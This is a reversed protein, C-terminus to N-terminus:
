DPVYKAASYIEFAKEYSCGAVIAKLKGADCVAGYSTTSLEKQYITKNNSKILITRDDNKDCNIEKPEKVPLIVHYTVVNKSFTMKEIRTNNRDIDDENYIFDGKFYIQITDNNEEPEPTLTERQINSTCGHLLLMLTLSFILLAIITKM